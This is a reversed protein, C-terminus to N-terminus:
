SGSGNDKETFFNDCKANDETSCPDLDFNFEKDLKDYFDQPTAWEPTKSSFMVKQTNADM